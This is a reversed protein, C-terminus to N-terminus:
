FEDLRADRDARRVGIYLLREIDHNTLFEHYQQQADEWHLSDTPTSVLTHDGIFCRAHDEIFRGLSEMYFADPFTAPITEGSATYATIAAAPVVKVGGDVPFVFVFSDPTTDLMADAGTAVQHHDIPTEDGGALTVTQVLVTTMVTYGPLAADIVIALDAGPTATAPSADQNTTTRAVFEVGDKTQGNVHEAIRRPFERQMRGAIEPSAGWAAPIDPTATDVGLEDTLTAIETGAREVERGLFRIFRHQKM